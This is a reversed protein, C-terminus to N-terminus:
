QETEPAPSDGTKAKLALARAEIDQMITHFRPLDRLSDLDTDQKMWHYFVIANVRPMCDELVDLAEDTEGLTAMACAINYDVSPDEPDIAKVRQAWQKAKEAEGLTALANVGCILAYTDFANEAIAREVREVTRVQADHAM